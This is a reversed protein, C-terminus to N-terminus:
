LAPPSSSLPGSDCCFSPAALGEAEPRAKTQTKDMVEQQEKSGEGVSAPVRSKRAPFHLLTNSDRECGGGYGTGEAHEAGTPAQEPPSVASLRHQGTPAPVSAGSQQPLYASNLFRAPATTLFSGEGRIDPVSSGQGLEWRRGGGWGWIQRERGM